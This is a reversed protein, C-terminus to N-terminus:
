SVSRWHYCPNSFICARHDRLRKNNKRIRKIHAANLRAQRHEPKQEFLKRRGTRVERVSATIAGLLQEMVNEDGGITSIHTGVAMGLAAILNLRSLAKM